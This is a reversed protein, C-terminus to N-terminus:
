DAALSTASTEALAQKKPRYVDFLVV